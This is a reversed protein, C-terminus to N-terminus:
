HFSPGPWLPFSGDVPASAGETLFRLMWYPLLYDIGPAQHHASPPNDEHLKNPERQWIFDSPQRRAVPLPELARQEGGLIIPTGPFITIRPAGPTAEMDRRDKPVCEITVGCDPTNDYPVGDSIETRYAPWQRLHELSAGLRGEEGTLGYTIAEFHANIDDGTTADMVGIGQKYVAKANDNPAQRVLNFAILHELNWKYYSGYPDAADFLHSFALFPTMAAFEATFLTRWKDTDAHGPHKATVHHAAQTMEMQAWPTYVFLPSIFNEFDHGCAKIVSNVQDCSPFGAEDLPLRIRGHPRPTNWLYKFAFNSLTVIDNRIQTRMDDDDPSVLDFALLLGFITGAYADRSTGDECLYNTVEGTQEDTWPFPGFVRPKGTYPEESEPGEDPRALEADDWRQWEPASEDICARMLYGPEGEFVGGGFGAQEHSVNLEHKWHQSINVLIHFKRVMDDIRAKAEDRAVVWDHIQGGSLGGQALKHKALAYRMSQAGLYTGTWLASDGYAHVDAVHQRTRPLPQGQPNTGYEIEYVQGDWINDAIADELDTAWDLDTGCGLETPGCEDLPPDAAVGPTLLGAVLLASVLAALRRM